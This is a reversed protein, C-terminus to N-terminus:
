SLNMSHPTPLNEQIYVTTIIVKKECIKHVSGAEVELVRWELQCLSMLTAAAVSFLSNPIASFVLSGKWPHHILLSGEEDAPGWSM